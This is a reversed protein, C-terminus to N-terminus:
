EFYGYYIGSYFLIKFKVNFLNTNPVQYDEYCLPHYTKFDIRVAMRLHWEDKEENYFQEFRDQCVECRSDQVKPDATM